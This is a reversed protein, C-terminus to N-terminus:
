WWLQPRQLASPEPLAHPVGGCTTGPLRAHADLLQLCGVPGRGVKAPAAQLAVHLLQGEELRMAEPECTIYGQPSHARPLWGLVHLPTPQFRMHQQGALRGAVWVATVIAWGGAKPRPEAWQGGVQQSLIQNIDPSLRVVDRSAEKHGAPRLFLLGGLAATVPLYCGTAPLPPSLLHTFCATHHLQM